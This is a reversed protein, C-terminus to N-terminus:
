CRALIASNLACIFSSVFFIHRKEIDNNMCTAACWAFKEREGAGAAVGIGVTLDSGSADFIVCSGLLLLSSFAIDSVYNLGTPSFPSATHAFPKRILQLSVFVVRDVTSNVRRTNKRPAPYDLRPQSKPDLKKSPKDIV